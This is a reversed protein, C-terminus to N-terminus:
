NNENKKEVGINKEIEDYAQFLSCTGEFHDLEHQAIYSGNGGEAYEYEEGNENLATIWVKQAREHDVFLGPVSLCGERMSHTGRTRTIKPNVLVHIDCWNIVCIRYPKGIQIASIGAGTSNKLTDILDTIIEKIEDNFETVEVSKQTLIEKDAPYTLIPRIM